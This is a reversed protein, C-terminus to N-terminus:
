LNKDFKKLVNKRAIIQEEPIEKNKDSYVSYDFQWNVDGTADIQQKHEVNKGKGRSFGFAYSVDGVTMFYCNYCLIRLNELRYDKINGKHKFSLVLPKRGDHVRRDGCGCMECCEQKLEYKFLMYMFDGLPFTNVRKNTIIEMVKQKLVKSYVTAVTPKWHKMRKFYDYYTESNTYAFMKAYKLLIRKSMDLSRAIADLTSHKTILEKFDNEQLKYLVNLPVAKWNFYKNKRQRDTIVVKKPIGKFRRDNEDNNEM